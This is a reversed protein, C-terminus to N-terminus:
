LYFTRKSWSLGAQQIRVSLPPRRLKKSREDIEKLTEEVQERRLKAPSRAAARRAPTEPQAVDMRRQEAKQEGSLIPYVFVWVLGGMAVAVLFFIAIQQLPM